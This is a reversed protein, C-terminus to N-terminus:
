NRKIINNYFKTNSELGDIHIGDSTAPELYGSSNILGETADIFKYGKESCYSQITTNYGDIGNNMTNKDVYTYNEGVHFVKLVYLPVDEYKEHLKDLLQKMQPASNYNNMGLSVIIGKPSDAQIENFHDLWYQAAKGVEAKVTAGGLLNYGSLGVFYSDGVMLFDNLGSIQEAQEGEVSKEKKNEEVETANGTEEDSLDKQTVEISTRKVHISGKFTNKKVNAKDNDDTLKKIKEEVTEDSDFDIEEEDGATPYGFTVDPYQTTFEAMIMKKLLEKQEKIGIDDYSTHSEKMVQDLYENLYNIQLYYGKKSDGKIEILDNINEIDIETEEGNEGKVKIKTGKRIAKSTDQFTILEEAWALGGILIIVILVAIGIILWKKFSISKLLKKILKGGKNAVKKLVKMEDEEM